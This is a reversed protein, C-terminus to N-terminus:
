HEHDDGGDAVDHHDDDGDKALRSHLPKADPVMPKFSPSHPDHCQVCLVKTQEGKGPDWFGNVRGHAGKQWDRYTPGHCKACLRAPTSAPIIGGDHDVYANRDEQHHCNICRTNIGHDFNDYIESHESALDQQRTLTTFDEHCESCKYEFGTRRNRLPKFEGRVPTTDFVNGVVEREYLNEPVVPDQFCSSLMLVVAVGMVMTISASHSFERIYKEM